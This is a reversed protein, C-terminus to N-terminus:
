AAGAEIRKMARHLNALHWAGGAPSPVGRENLAAVMQRMTLGEARLSAFTEALPLAREVAAARHREALVKGHKGLATGRTKAAALAAQTRESIRRAEEEALAAHIHLEFPRAHPMDVAVFPVGTEMLGAIFAVNRALRDLKAIVLTAKAKRAADLAARLQPRKALANSGKGTETETFAGVLDWAGGNLYDRVAQEQAELGLGSRGQEQTSVRYYAVFRGEM